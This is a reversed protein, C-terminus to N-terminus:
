AASWVAIPAAHRAKRASQTYGIKRIKKQRALRTIVAGLASPEHTSVDHHATLYAWVDDATFTPRMRALHLVVTEACAKWADDANRDVRAIAEDRAAFASFLDDQM